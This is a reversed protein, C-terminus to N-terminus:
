PCLAVYLSSRGQAGFINIVTQSVGAYAIYLLMLTRGLTKSRLREMRENWDEDAQANLEDEEASVPAGKISHFARRVRRKLLQYTDLITPTAQIFGVVSALGITLINFVLYVDRRPALQPLFGNLPYRSVLRAHKIFLTRSDPCARLETRLCSLPSKPQPHFRM